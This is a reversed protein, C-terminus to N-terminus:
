HKIIVVSHSHLLGSTSSNSTYLRCLARECTGAADLSWTGVSSTRWDALLSRLAAAVLCAMFHTFFLFWPEQHRRTFLGVTGILLTWFPETRSDLLCSLGFDGSSSPSHKMDNKIENEDYCHFFIVKYLRRWNLNKKKFLCFHHTVKERVLTCRPFLFQFAGGAARVARSVPRNGNPVWEELSNKSKNQLFKTSNNNPHKHGDSRRRQNLATFYFFFFLFILAVFIQLKGCFDM